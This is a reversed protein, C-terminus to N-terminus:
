QGLLLTAALLGGLEECKTLDAGAVTKPALIQQASQAGMNVILPPALPTLRWGTCIREVQRAAGAGDSGASIACAYPLGQIRDLLAYYNRDFFEKMEGSLSALNEPACFLYAQSALLAEAQTDCARRLLVRLDAAQELQAAAARAGREAAEAMQRAAGTRSHWVILLQKM